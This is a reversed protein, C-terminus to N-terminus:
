SSLHTTYSVIDLMYGMNSGNIGENLIHKHGRTTDTKGSKRGLAKRLRFRYVHKGAETDIRENTEGWERLTGLEVSKLRRIWSARSSMAIFTTPTLTNCFEYLTALTGIKQLAPIECSIFHVSHGGGIESSVFPQLLPFLLGFFLLRLRGFLEVM